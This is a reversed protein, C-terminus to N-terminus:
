MSNRIDNVNKYIINKHRVEPTSEMPIIVSNSSTIAIKAIAQNNYDDEWSKEQKMLPILSKLFYKKNELNNNMRQEFFNKKAYNFVGAVAGFCFSSIGGALLADYSAWESASKNGHIKDQDSLAKFYTVIPGSVASAILFTFEIGMLLTKKNYGIANHEASLRHNLLADLAHFNKANNAQGALYIAESYDLMASDALNRIVFDPIEKFNETSGASVLSRVSDRRINYGNNEEISVSRQTNVGRLSGSISTIGSDNSFSRPKSEFMM